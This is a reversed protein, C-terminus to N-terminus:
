AETGKKRGIILIWKHNFGIDGDIRYPNLGTKDGGALEEEMLRRIEEGDKKSAGSLTLWPTLKQPIVKSTSMEVTLGEGKFLALMEDQTLNRVHSPDRLREIKDRIVRYPEASAEMDVLVVRGGKKTVRAMESFPEWVDKFHHFALRSHTIDFTEDLFPLDEAMGKVYILNSLGEKEAAKRGKELAEESVDLPVVARVYPSFARSVACTGAGVDLVADDPRPRVFALNFGLYEGKSFINVMEGIDPAKKELPTRNQLQEEEMFM